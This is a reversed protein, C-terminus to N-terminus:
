VYMCAQVLVKFRIPMKSIGQLKYKTDQLEQFLCKMNTGGSM